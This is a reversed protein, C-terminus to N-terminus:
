DKSAADEKQMLDFVMPALGELRQSWGGGGHVLWPCPRLEELQM